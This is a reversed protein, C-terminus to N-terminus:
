RNGCSTPQRSHRVRFLLLACVGFTLAVLFFGTGVGYATVVVGSVLPGVLEGASSSAGTLANASLLRDRGVLDTLIARSAPLSVARVAGVGLTAVILHWPELAHFLALMALPMALFVFAARRVGTRSLQYFPRCLIGM